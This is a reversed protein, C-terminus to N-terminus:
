SLVVGGGFAAVASTLQLPLSSTWLLAEPPAIAPLATSLIVHTLVRSNICLHEADHRVCPLWATFTLQRRVDKFGLLVTKLSSIKPPTISPSSSRGRSKCCVCPVSAEPKYSEDHSQDSLMPTRQPRQIGWEVIFEALRARRVCCSACFLHETLMQQICSSLSTKLFLRIVVTLLTLWVWARGEQREGHEGHLGLTAPMTRPM